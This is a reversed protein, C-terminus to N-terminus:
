AASVVREETEKTEREGRGGECGRQRVTLAKGTNTHSMADPHRAALKQWSM